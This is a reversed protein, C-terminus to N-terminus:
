RSPWAGEAALSLGHVVIRRQFPATGVKYRAAGSQFHRLMRVQRLIAAAFVPGAQHPLVREVAEAGLAVGLVAGLEPENNMAGEPWSISPGELCRREAAGFAAANCAHGSLCDCQLLHVRSHPRGLRGGAM